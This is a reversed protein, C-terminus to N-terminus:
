LFTQLGYHEPPKTVLQKASVENSDLEAPIITYTGNLNCRVSARNDTDVSIDYAQVTVIFVPHIVTAIHFM